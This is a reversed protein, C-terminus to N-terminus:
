RSVVFVFAISCYLLLVAPKTSSDGTLGTMPMHLQCIKPHSGQGPFGSVFTITVHHKYIPKWIFTHTHTNRRWLGISDHHPYVCTSAAPGWQPVLVPSSSFSSPVVLSWHSVGGVLPWGMVWCTCLHANTSQFLQNSFPLLLLSLFLQYSVHYHSITCYTLDHM